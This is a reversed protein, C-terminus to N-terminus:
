RRLDLHPQPRIQYGCRASAAVWLLAKAGARLLDHGDGVHGLCFQYQWCPPRRTPLITSEPCEGRLFCTKFRDDRICRSQCADCTGFYFRRCPTSVYRREAGVVADFPDGSDSPVRKCQECALSRFIGSSNIWPEHADDCFAFSVLRYKGIRHGCLPRAPYLSFGPCAVAGLCAVGPGALVRVALVMQIFGASRDEIISITSFVSSFVLVMMVIGPFFYELYPLEAGPLGFTPAMGSGLILWLILPQLLVAALRAPQTFFRMLDRRWLVYITSLDFQLAKM